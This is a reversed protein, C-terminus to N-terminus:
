GYDGKGRKSTPFVTGRVTKQDEDRWRADEDKQSRKAPKNRWDEPMKGKKAYEPADAWGNRPM